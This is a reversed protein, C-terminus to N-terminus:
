LPEGNEDLLMTVPLGSDPEFWRSPSGLFTYAGSSESETGDTLTAGAPPSRRVGNARLLRVLRRLDDLRRIDGTRLLASATGVVNVGDDAMRLALEEGTLENVI